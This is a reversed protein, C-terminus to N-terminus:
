ADVHFGLDTLRKRARAIQQADFLATWKPQLVLYEVSIEPKGCDWLEYLGSQVDDTSLLRRATEVGGHDLVMHLFATATYRCEKRARQYIGVMAEHFEQESTAM